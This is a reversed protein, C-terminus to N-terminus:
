FHDVLISVNSNTVHNIGNLIMSKDQRNITSGNQNAGHLMLSLQQADTGGFHPLILEVPKLFQVGHPGCMVIPSLLREGQKANFKRINSGDQCVHFFIEQQVGEPLAGVPVSVSVGTLSCSLKGGFYDMVGRAGGIINCEDQLSYLRTEGVEKISKDKVSLTSSTSSSSLINQQQQQGIFSKDDPTYVRPKQLPFESNQYQHRNTSPQHNFAATTSFSQSKLSESPFAATASTHNHKKSSCMKQKLLSEAHLKDNSNMSPTQENRRVTDMSTCRIIRYSSDINNSYSDIGNSYSPLITPRSSSSSSPRNWSAYGNVPLGKEIITMTAKENSNRRIHNQVSGGSDSSSLRENTQITRLKPAILPRRSSIRDTKGNISNLSSENTDRIQARVFPAPILKATSQTNSSTENEFHNKYKEQEDQHYLRQLRYLDDQEVHTISDPRYIPQGNTTVHFSHHNISSNRDNNYKETRFLDDNNNNNNNNNITPMFTNNNNDDITKIYSLSRQYLRSNDTISNSHTLGPRNQNQEDNARPMETVSHSRNPLSISSNQFFTSNDDDEEEDEDNDDFDHHGDTSYSRIKDRPFMVPDSAVRQLYNKGKRQQMNMMDSDPSSEDRTYNDDSYSKRTSIFYEDSNPLDKDAPRDDSMWIPQEQEIEIQAKLAKYWNATSDLKIVSTFLYSFLFELRESSEFLRRSSKQYLKGYENRIQKIQRRDSAKFYIVIPYCQAYNLQEVATPTVDLLCHRNRQIVNKISQLKIVNARAKTPSQTEIRPLEFLDPHEKLLRDRAIDALPGFLVVPRIITVAKLLVREYAPFKSNTLAFFSDEKLHHISSVSRSRKDGFKSRLKRKFSPQKSKILQDLNPAVSALQEARLKNPIAGTIKNHTPSANLKTAVWYGVQGNYLTDTVHFIDNVRLSLEEENTTNYTFHARIYFSDGGVDALLQEYEHRLNAVIMNVQLSKMNMLCLVAEERTLATFDINNVSFIKDAVLLGAKHAVSNPQVECIFLGHKDGGALRIGMSTSDTLFSVYRTGTSSRMFDHRNVIPREFVHQNYDAQLEKRSSSPRDQVVIPMSTVEQHNHIGNQHSLSKDQNSKNPIVFLVLREKAKDILKQAEQLTLRDVLTENIKIVEDGEHLNTYKDSDKFHIKKVFYRCGLVIGFKEDKRTKNLICKVPPQSDSVLVPHKRRRVILNVFDTSERILKLASHEMQRIVPHGNVSLIQDNPFLKGDAPGNKIVECVILSQNDFQNEDHYSITNKKLDALKNENNGGSIAIGFGHLPSRTLTVQICDAIEEDNLSTRNNINNNNNNRNNNDILSM